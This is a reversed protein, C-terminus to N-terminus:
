LGILTMRKIMTNPIMAPLMGVNIQQINESSREAGHYGNKEVPIAMGIMINPQKPKRLGFRLEQNSLFYNLYCFLDHIGVKWEGILWGAVGGMLATVDYQVNPLLLDVVVIVGCFGGLLEATGPRAM